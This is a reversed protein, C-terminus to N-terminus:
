RRNIAEMIKRATTQTEANPSSAAQSFVAKAEASRLWDRDKTLANLVATGYRYDASKLRSTVAKLAEPSGNDRLAAAAARCTVDDDLHRELLPLFDSLKSKGLTSIAYQRDDSDLAQNFFATALAVADPQKLRALAVFFVACPARKPQQLTLATRIPEIALDDGLRGLAEILSAPYMAISLEDLIPQVAERSGLDALTKAALGSKGDHLARILIPIAEPSKAKAIIAFDGEEAVDSSIKALAAAAPTLEGIRALAEIAAAKLKRNRGSQLQKLAPVAASTTRGGVARCAAARVDADEDALLALLGAETADDAFEAAAAAASLRVSAEPDRMAKLVAVTDASDSQRASAPLGTVRSGLSAVAAARINAEADAAAKILAERVGSQTLHAGLAQAAAFQVEVSGSSLYGLLKKACESRRGLITVTGVEESVAVPIPPDWQQFGSANPGFAIPLWHEPTRHYAWLFWQRISERDLLYTSDKLTVLCGAENDPLSASLEALRGVNLINLRAAVEIVHVSPDFASARLTADLAHVENAKLDFNIAQKGVRGRLRWDLTSLEFPTQMSSEVSSLDFCLWGGAESGPALETDKLWGLMGPERHVRMEPDFLVSINDPRRSPLAIGDAELVVDAKRFRLTSAGQNTLTLRFCLYPRSTWTNAQTAEVEIRILQPLDPAPTDGNISDDILRRVNSELVWGYLTPIERNVAVSLWAGRTKVLPLREGKHVTAIIREGVNVPASDVIVEVEDGALRPNALLVALCFAAGSCM